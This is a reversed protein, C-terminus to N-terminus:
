LKGTIRLLGREYWPLLLYQISRSIDQVVMDMDAAELANRRDDGRRVHYSFEVTAQSDFISAKMLRHLGQSLVERSVSGYFPRNRSDKSDSPAPVIDAAIEFAQRIKITHISTSRVTALVSFLEEVAGGPDCDVSCSSLHFQLSLLNPNHALTCHRKDRDELAAPRPAQANLLDRSESLIREFLAKRGWMPGAFMMRLGKMGPWLRPSCTRNITGSAYFEQFVLLTEGVSALLEDVQSSINLPWHWTALHGLTECAGSEVLWRIFSAVFSPLLDWGLVLQKLRVKTSPHPRGTTGDHAAAAAATTAHTETLGGALKLIKLGPFASVIRRLESFCCLRFRLLELTTVGRFVSLTTFFSAHMQPRLSSVFVLRSVNPLARGLVLPVIHTPTYCAARPQVGIPDIIRLTETQQLREPARADHRIFYALSELSYSHTVTIDRYIVRVVAHYWARCVLACTALCGQPMVDVILEVVEFPIRGTLKHPLNLSTEEVVREELGSTNESESDEDILYKLAQELTM